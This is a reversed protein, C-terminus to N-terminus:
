PPLPDLLGQKGLAVVASLIKRHEEDQEREVMVQFLSKRGGQSQTAAGNPKSSTGPREHSYYCQAGFQCKGTRAFRTCPKKSTRSGQATNNFNNPVPAKSSQEAPPDNDDSDADSNSSNGASSLVSSDSVTGLSDDDESSVDPAHDRSVTAPTSLHKALLAEAAELDRQAKSAKRRLREAHLKAALASDQEATPRHSKTRGTSQKNSPRNKRQRDERALKSAEARAQKEAEWRTRKENAEKQAAERKAQTPFRRKRETIWAAIEAATNLTATRGRYSFELDQGGGGQALRSEEEEDDESDSQAANAPTLGLVNKSRDKRSPQTVPAPHSSPQAPLLNALNSFSPVAPAAPPRSKRLAEAGFATGHDRKQQSNLSGHSGGNQSSHGRQGGRGQGRGSYQGHGRGRSFGGRGRREGSSAGRGRSPPDHDNNSRKPPPPPPPPFTFSQGSM